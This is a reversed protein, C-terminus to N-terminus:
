FNFTLYYRNGLELKDSSKTLADPLRTPRRTVERLYLWNCDPLLLIANLYIM